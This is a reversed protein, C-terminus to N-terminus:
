VKAISGDLDVANAALTINNGADFTANDAPATLEVVPPNNAEPATLAASQLTVNGFMQDEMSAVTWMIKLLAGPSRAAFTVTYVASPGNLANTLSEDTYAPASNDSLSAEFKGSAGYTG